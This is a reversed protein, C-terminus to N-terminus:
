YFDIPLGELKNKQEFRLGALFEEVDLFKRSTEDSIQAGQCVQESSCGERGFPSFYLDDANSKQFTSSIAYNTL